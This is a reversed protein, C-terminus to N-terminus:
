PHLNLSVPSAPAVPWIESYNSKAPLLGENLSKGVDFIGDVIHYAAIAAAIAPDSADIIPNALPIATPAITGSVAAAAPNQTAAAAGVSATAVSTGALPATSQTAPLGGANSAVTSGTVTAAGITSFLVTAASTTDLKNTVGMKAAAATMVGSATDAAIKVGTITPTGTAAGATPGTTVGTAKAATEGGTVPMGTAGTASTATTVAANTVGTTMGATSTGAVGAATGTAMSTTKGATAAGTAMSTTTGTVGTAAGTTLGAATLAIIKGVSATTDTAGTMGTSSTMSTATTVAATSGTAAYSPMAASQSNSIQALINMQIFLSTFGAASQGVSQTAQTLLALTGTQDALYASQLSKPDVTMQATGNLNLAPQYTIGIGSLQTLISQASAGTAQSNLAQVLLDSFSAGSSNQLSDSQLFGNFADVFLQTAALVAAFSDTGATKSITKKLLSASSLLQGLGSINVSTSGTTAPAVISFVVRQSHTAAFINQLSSSSTVSSIDM